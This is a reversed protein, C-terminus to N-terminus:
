PRFARVSRELAVRAGVPFLERDAVLAALEPGPAAVDTFGRRRLWPASWPVDVFVAATMRAHGAARAWACAADLLATGRGARMASPLVALAALYAVGDVVDLRAVGVVPSGVVLVAAATELEAPDVSRSPLTYGAVRFVADAREIM